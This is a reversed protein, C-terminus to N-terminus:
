EPNWVGNKVGEPQEEAVRRRCLKDSHTRGVKGPQDRWTFLAPAGGNEARPPPQGAVPGRRWDSDGVAGGWCKCDCCHRRERPVTALSAHYFRVLDTCELPQRRFEFARRPDAMRRARDQKAREGRLAQTQTLRM